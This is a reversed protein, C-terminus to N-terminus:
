ALGLEQLKTLVSQVRQAVTLNGRLELTPATFRHLWANHNALTRSGGCSGDDYGAAWKLFAQYQQVRRPDAFIVDGYREQERLQLRHLRVAPPLWLFVVPDFATLWQGGWGVISGGVIWRPRGALDALLAADREAAPRRVTFPPDSPEWFYSDSDFYPVGLAEGLALGLTTVGVGSAGFLHLKM